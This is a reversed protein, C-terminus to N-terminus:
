GPFPSPGLYGHIMGIVGMLVISAVLFMGDKAISGKPGPHWKPNGKNIIVIELTAWFLLGGFLIVSALDGNVLLHAVAWLIFGTLQPHRMNNLLVGKRPAPSMMFIAILVLLNNAHVAWSPPTWIYASGMFRYGLVMLVIGILIGLAVVGKGKDGMSARMDPAVRKFLHAAIWFLLGTVM